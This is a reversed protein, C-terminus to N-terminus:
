FKQGDKVDVNVHDPNFYKHAKAKMQDRQNLDTAMFSAQMQIQAMILSRLKQLQGVEQAAIMNGVQIAEMRGKASRGLNELTKMTDEETAFQTSQLGAAKMAGIVSDMNTKSWDSYRDSYTSASQSQEKSYAAYGRYKQRYLVDINASSYAIGEGERVVESLSQLDRETKGWEQKSLAKGQTKMDNVMASQRQIQERLQMSQLHLEHAQKVLELNNMVQTVESAGGFGAVSGAMAPSASFSLLIFKLMTKKM